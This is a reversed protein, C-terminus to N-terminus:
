MASAPSKEKLLFGGAQGAEAFFPLSFEAFGKV